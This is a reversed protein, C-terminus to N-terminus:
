AEVEGDFAVNERIWMDVDADTATDPTAIAALQSTQADTLNRAAALADIAASLTDNWADAPRTAARKAWAKGPAGAADGIVGIIDAQERTILRTEEADAVTMEEPTYVGALEAPFAKRLALAEACKALQNAPMNQWMAVLEGKFTKQAYERFMAVGYTPRDSGTLYVGIRAAVPPDDSAWVDTWKEGDYWEPMTQGNYRGSRQATLRYGDISTQITMKPGDKTNRVVAYIQKAFPDLGTRQCVQAFLGLQTDTINPFLERRLIDTQQPTWTALDTTM